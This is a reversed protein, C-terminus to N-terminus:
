VLKILELFIFRSYFIMVINLFIVSYRLMRYKLMCTTYYYYEIRNHKNWAYMYMLKILFLGAAISGYYMLQSQTNKKM